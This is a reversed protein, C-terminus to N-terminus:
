TDIAYPDALATIDEVAEESQSVLFIPRLRYSRYVQTNVWPHGALM